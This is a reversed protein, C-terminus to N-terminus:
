SARARFGVTSELGCLWFDSAVRAVCMDASKRYSTSLSSTGSDLARRSGACGTVPASEITVVSWPAQGRQPAGSGGSSEDPRQARQRRDSVWPSSVRIGGTLGEKVRRTRRLNVSAEATAAMAAITRVLRQNPFLRPWCASSTSARKWRPTSRCLRPPELFRDRFVAPRNRELGLVRLGM